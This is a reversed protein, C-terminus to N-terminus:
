HQDITCIEVGNVFISICILLWVTFFFIIAMNWTQSHLFHVNEYEEQPITCKSWSKHIYRSLRYWSVNFFIHVKQGLLEAECTSVRLFLHHTQLFIKVLSCTMGNNAITISCLCHSLWYYSMQSTCQSVDYISYLITKFIIYFLMLYWPFINM